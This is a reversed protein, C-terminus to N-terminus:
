RKLHSFSELTKQLGEDLSVPPEYGFDKKANKISYYHVTAALTVKTPTLTPNITIIPSIVSCLFQLCVAFYYAIFFPIAIKPASYGLGTLTRGIFDWFPVPESNTINYARGSIRSKRTLKEAALIHGHVVNEVYTFDVKNKGDGIKFITTGKKAMSVLTPVFHPDRPGFIGHPRLAITCFDESPDNAELVEEEQEIKSETYADMPKETYGLEERGNQLDTGEYIVSASSTLIFKKVGAERCSQLITRTGECNVKQFLERDVSLPPPTACHFVTHVGSLAPVLDSKNCLNGTFFQIKKEEFTQKMDFVRVHYGKCLLGDVLHRGLFGCGGIVLCSKETDNTSNIHAHGGVGKKDKENEGM